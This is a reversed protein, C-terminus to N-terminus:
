SVKGEDHAAAMMSRQLRRRRCRECLRVLDRTEDGVYEFARHLLEDTMPRTPSGCVSCGAFPIGEEAALEGPRSYVPLPQPDMHLAHGTCHDVCRACFTCRGPEYAWVYAKDENVGTVAGSVCVYACVGCAVCKSPDLLVRGRYGPPVPVSEPLRLTDRDRSLNDVIVQLIRMVIM